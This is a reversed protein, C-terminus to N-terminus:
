NDEGIDDNKENLGLLKEGVNSRFLISKAKSKEEVERWNPPLLPNVKPKQGSSSSSSSPRAYMGGRQRTRMFERVGVGSRETAVAKAMNKQEDAIAANLKEKEIREREATMQLEYAIQQALPLTSDFKSDNRLREEMEKYKRLEEEARLREEEEAQQIRALEEQRLRELRQQEDEADAQDSVIQMYEEMPLGTPIRRPDKWHEPLMETFDISDGYDDYLKWLIQSPIRTNLIQISTIDPRCEPMVDKRIKTGMSTIYYDKPNEREVRKPAFDKIGLKQLDPPVMIPNLFEELATLLNRKQIDSAETETVIATGMEDYSVLTSSGKKSKQLTFTPTLTVIEAPAEEKPNLVATSPTPPGDIETQFFADECRTVSILIPAIPVFENETAETPTWQIPFLEEDGEPTYNMTKLAERHRLRILEHSLSRAIAMFNTRDAKEITLLRRYIICMTTLTEQVCRVASDECCIIGVSRNANDTVPVITGTRWKYDFHVGSDLCVASFAVSTIDKIAANEYKFSCVAFKDKLDKQTESFVFGASKKAHDISLAPVRNLYHYKHIRARNCDFLAHGPETAARSYAQRVPQTTRSSTYLSFNQYHILAETVYPKIAVCWLNRVEKSMDDWAVFDITLVGFIGKTYCHLAVNEAADILEAHACTQQPCMVGWTTYPAIRITDTTGLLTLDGDPEIFFHVSPCRDPLGVIMSADKEAPNLANQNVPVIPAAEIVGGNKYLSSLFATISSYADPRVLVLHRKLLSLLDEDNLNPADKRSKLHSVDIYALGRQNIEGDIKLIIRQLYQQDQLFKKLSDILKEECNINGVGPAFAVGSSEILDRQKSNSFCLDRKDGTVGLIPAEFISSLQIEYDGVLGPAIVAPKDQIMAKIKNIAKTSALLMASISSGPAFFKCCEPTIFILRGESLIQQYNEFYNDLTKDVIKTTEEDLPYSIYIITVYPNDLETLRGLQCSQLSNSQRKQGKGEMPIPFSPIHIIYRRTSKFHEPWIEKLMKQMEVSNALHKKFNDQKWSDRLRESAIEYGKSGKFKQGPTRYITEVEERNFMCDLIDKETVYEILPRRLLRLLATSDVDAWMIHYEQCFKEIRKVIALLTVYPFGSTDRLRLFSPSNRMAKGNCISFTLPERVIRSVKEPIYNAKSVRLSQMPTPAPAIRRYIPKPLAPPPEIKLNAELTVTEMAAVQALRILPSINENHDFDTSQNYFKTHYPHLEKKINSILEPVILQKTYDANHPLVSKDMLPYIGESTVEAAAALIHDTSGVVPTPSWIKTSRFASSKHLHGMGSRASLGRTTAASTGASKQRQIRQQVTAGTTAPRPKATVPLEESTPLASLSAMRGKLAQVPASLARKQAAASKARSKKVPDDKIFNTRGLDDRSHTSDSFNVELLQKSLSAM